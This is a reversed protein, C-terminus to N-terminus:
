EIEVWQIVGEVIYGDRGIQLWKEPYEEDVWKQLHAVCQFGDENKVLYPKSRTFVGLDEEIDSPKTDPYRNWNVITPELFGVVKTTPHIPGSEIYSSIYTETQKEM